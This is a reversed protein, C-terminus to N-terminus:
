ARVENFVDASGGLGGTTRLMVNELKKGRAFRDLHRAM